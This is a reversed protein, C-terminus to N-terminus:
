LLSPDQKPWDRVDNGYKVTMYRRWAASSLVKLHKRVDNDEDGIYIGINFEEGDLFVTIEARDRQDDPQPGEKANEYEITELATKRPENMEKTMEIGVRLDMTDYCTEWFTNCEFEKVSQFCERHIKIAGYDTNNLTMMLAKFLVEYSHDPRDKPESKM